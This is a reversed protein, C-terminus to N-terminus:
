HPHDAIWGLLAAYDLTHSVDRACPPCRFAARAPGEPDAAPHFATCRIPGRCAPCRWGRSAAFDTLLGLDSFEGTVVTAAEPGLGGTRPRGRNAIQRDYARSYQHAASLIAGLLDWYEPCDAADGDRFVRDHADSAFFRGAIACLAPDTMFVASLPHLSLVQERFVNPIVEDGPLEVPQTQMHWFRLFRESVDDLGRHLRLWPILDIWVNAFCRYFSTKCAYAFLNIFQRVRRQGGKKRYRALWHDVERLFQELGDVGCQRLLAV